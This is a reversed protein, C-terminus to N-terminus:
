NESHNIQRFLRSPNHARRRLMLLSSNRCLLYILPLLVRKIGAPQRHQQPEIMDIRDIVTFVPRFQM